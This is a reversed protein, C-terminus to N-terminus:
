QGKERKVSDRNKVTQYSKGLIEAIERYTMGEQRLKKAEEFWSM